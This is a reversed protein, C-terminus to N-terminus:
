GAAGKDDRMWAMDAANLVFWGSSSVVAGEDTQEIKAEHAAMAALSASGPARRAGRRWGAIVQLQVTGHPAHRGGAPDPVAPVNRGLEGVDELRVEVPRGPLDPGRGLED